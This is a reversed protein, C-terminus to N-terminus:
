EHNQQKLLEIEKQQQLLEILRKKAFMEADVFNEGRAQVLAKTEEYLKDAYKSVELLYDLADAYIITEGNLSKVEISINTDAGYTYLLLAGRFNRAGIACMFPTWGNKDKADIDAGHSLLLEISEHSYHNGRSRTIASHLPTRDTSPNRDNSLEPRLSLATALAASDYEALREIYSKNWSYNAIDIDVGNNVLWRLQDNYMITGMAGRPFHGMAYYLLINNGSKDKLNIDVSDKLREVTEFDGVGFAYVFEKMTPPLDKLDIDSNLVKLLAKEPPQPESFARRKALFLDTRSYDPEGPQLPPRSALFDRELKVYERNLELLARIYNVPLEQSHLPSITLAFMGALLLPKAITNMPKSQTVTDPIRM